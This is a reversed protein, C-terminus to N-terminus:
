MSGRKRHRAHQRVFAQFESPKLFIRRSTPSCSQTTLSARPFRPHHVRRVRLNAPTIGLSVGLTGRSSFVQNLAPTDGPRHGASVGSEQFEEPYGRLVVPGTGSPVGLSIEPPAESPVGLVVAPAGSPGRIGLAYWPNCHGRARFLALIGGMELPAPHGRTPYSTRAM